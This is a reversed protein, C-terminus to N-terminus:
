TTLSLTSLLCVFSLKGGAMTDERGVLEGSIRHRFLLRHKRLTGNCRHFCVAGIDRGCYVCKYPKNNM